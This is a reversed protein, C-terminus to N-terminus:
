PRKEKENEKWLRYYDLAGGHPIGFRKGLKEWTIVKVNPDRETKDRVDAIRRGLELIEEPNRRRTSKIYKNRCVM